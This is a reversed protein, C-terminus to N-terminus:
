IEFEVQTNKIQLFAIPKQMNVKDAASYNNIILELILTKQEPKPKGYISMRCKGAFLPLKTDKKGVQM